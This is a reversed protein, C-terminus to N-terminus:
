KRFSYVYLFELLRCSSIMNLKQFVQIASLIVQISAVGMVVSVIIIALPELRTRGRPYKYINRTRIKRTSLWIVFGSVLDM